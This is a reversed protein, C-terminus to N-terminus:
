AERELVATWMVEGTEELLELLKIAQGIEIEYPSAYGREGGPFCIEESIEESVGTVLCFAGSIGNFDGEVEETTRHIGKTNLHKECIGGICRSPAYMNFNFEAKRAKELLDIANRVAM